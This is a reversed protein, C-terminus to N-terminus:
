LMSAHSLVLLCAAFVSLLITHTPPMLIATNKLSADATSCNQSFLVCDDAIMTTAITANDEELVGFETLHSANCVVHTPLVRVTEMGDTKFVSQLADWYKCKLKSQIRQFVDLSMNRLPITMCIPQKLHTVPQEDGTENFFSLGVVPSQLGAAAMVESENDMADDERTLLVTTNAIWESMEDPLEFSTDNDAATNGPIRLTLNNKHMLHSPLFRMLKSRVFMDEQQELKVATLFAKVEDRVAHVAQMRQDLPLPVPGQNNHQTVPMPKPLRTANKMKEIFESKQAAMAMADACLPLILVLLWYKMTQTYSFNKKIHIQMCSLAACFWLVEDHSM